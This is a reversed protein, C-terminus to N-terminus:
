VLDDEWNTNITSQTSYMEYVQDASTAQVPTKDPRIRIFRPFRLSIGKGEAPRSWSATHVPSISLDAARVEWVQTPEFWVDLDPFLQRYDRRPKPIVHEKLQNYFTNLIEDSFGTGIKCVTQFEESGESYM